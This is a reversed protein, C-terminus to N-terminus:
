LEGPNSTGGGIGISDTPVEGSTGEHKIRSAQLMLSEEIEEFEAFPKQYVKKKKMNQKQILAPRGHSSPWPWEEGNREAM